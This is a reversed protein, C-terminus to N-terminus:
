TRSAEVYPVLIRDAMRGLLMLSTYGPGVIDSVFPAHLGSFGPLSLDRGMEQRLQTREERIRRRIAPAFLDAFWWNDFGSADIVMAAPIDTQPAEDPWAPTARVILDPLSGDEPPERHVIDDAVGPWLSLNTAELLVESVSNWVVSRTLRATFNAREEPHLAEWAEEDDFLRNEFFNNVRAYLTARPTILRIDHHRYGNRILWAAIAAATGGSGILVVPADRCSDALDRVAPLAQWFSEGTFVRRDSISSLARQPGPSTMVVGHFGSSSMVGGPVQTQLRWGGREHRLGIVREPICTAESASVADRLYAAFEGHSPPRSGRSVWDAYANAGGGRILFSQWSFRAQMRDAVASGYSEVDYPFGLDREAPTCLLQEGDTYGHAGDWNAGIASKEFLTVHVDGVGAARLCWAKAALAAGKAGGGIVAIEQRAM